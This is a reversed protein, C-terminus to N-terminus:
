RSTLDVSPWQPRRPTLRVSSGPGPEAYGINLVGADIQLRHGSADKGVVNSDVELGKRISRKGTTCL